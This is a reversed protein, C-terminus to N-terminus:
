WLNFEAISHLAFWYIHTTLSSYSSLVFWVLSLALRGSVTPDYKNEKMLLDKVHRSYGIMREGM